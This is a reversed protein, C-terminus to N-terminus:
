RAGEQFLIVRVTSLIILADLFLSRNKVYYLDYSLKERADEVSAGYPMSVQAWGTIGPKVHHRDCYFPIETSLRAVFHPREPRPGVFGMEGRLVNLLQPLEDIRTKRLFAGVRTVRCDDLAAWAPGNVEADLRMSRLKLLTFSKGGLGVREQRYLVPGPGDLKIAVAALALVPLTLVLGTLSLLIEAGRRTIRVALTPSLGDAYLVWDPTMSALDMRRLHQERFMVDGFIRVGRTKARLLQKVSVDQSGTHEEAAGAAVVVAWIKHRRLWDSTLSAAAEPAVVRRVKFMQRPLAAVAAATCAAQEPTGVLLINRTLLGSRVVVRLMLRTGFLLLVWSLLMKMPWIADHGLLLSPDIHTLVSVLLIVPFGIVGAVVSNILLGRTRLCIEPRYLGIAISTLGVTLGLLSASRATALDIGAIGLATGPLLLVYFVLFALLFELLWLLFMELSIHHGIIRTM